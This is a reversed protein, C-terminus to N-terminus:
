HYDEIRLINIITVQEWDLGGDAKAPLPDHFPEFVIRYNKSIDVALEGHHDGTLKHCRAAPIQRIVALNEAAKFEQMRQNAKKARQGLAKVLERPDTLQKRLKNTKFEIQM